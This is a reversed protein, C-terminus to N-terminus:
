TGGCAVRSASVCSFAIIINKKNSRNCAALHAHMSIAPARLWRMGATRPRLACHGAAPAPWTSPPGQNSTSGKSRVFMQRHDLCPELAPCQHACCMAIQQLQKCDLGDNCRLSNSTVSAGSTSRSTLPNGASCNKPSVTQFYSPALLM